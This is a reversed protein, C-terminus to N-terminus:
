ARAVDGGHVQAVIGRQDLSGVLDCRGPHKLDFREDAIKPRNAEDDVGRGDAVGLGAVCGVATARPRAPDGKWGLVAELGRDEDVLERM